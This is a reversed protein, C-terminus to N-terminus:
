RRDARYLDLEFGPRFTGPPSSLLGKRTTASVLTFPKRSGCRRPTRDRTSCSISPSDEVGPLHDRWSAPM